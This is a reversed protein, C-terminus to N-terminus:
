DTVRELIRKLLKWRQQLLSFFMQHQKMSSSSEAVWGWSASCSFHEHSGGPSEWDTKGSGWEIEWCGSMSQACTGGPWSCTKRLWELARKTCLSFIGHWHCRVQLLVATLESVQALAEGKNIRQSSILRVCVLIWLRINDESQEGLVCLCLYFILGCCWVAWDKERGFSFSIKTFCECQKSFVRPLCHNRRWSLWCTRQLVEFRRVWLAPYLQQPSALFELM